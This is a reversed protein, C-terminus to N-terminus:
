LFLLQLSAFSPTRAAALERVFDLTDEYERVRKPTPRRDPPLLAPRLNTVLLTSERYPSLRKLGEMLEARAFLPTASNPTRAADWHFFGHTPLHAFCGSVLQTAAATFAEDFRTAYEPHERMQRELDGLSFTIADRIQAALYLDHGTVHAFLANIFHLRRLEERDPLAPSM